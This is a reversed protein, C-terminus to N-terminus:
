KKLHWIKRESIIREFFWNDNGWVNWVLWKFHKSNYCKASLLALSPCGYYKKILISDILFISVMLGFLLFLIKM